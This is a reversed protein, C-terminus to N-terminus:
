STPPRELQRRLQRARSLGLERLAPDIARVPAEAPIRDALRDEFARRKDTMAPIVAGRHENGGREGLAAFRDLNASPRDPLGRVPAPAPAGAAPAGAPAMAPYRRELPELYVSLPAGAPGRETGLLGAEVLAQIAGSAQRPGTGLLRALAGYTLSTGPHGAAQQSLIVYTFRVMAELRLDELVVNPVRTYQPAVPARFRLHVVTDAAPASGRAQVPETSM